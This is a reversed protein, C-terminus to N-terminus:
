QPHGARDRRTDAVASTGGDFENITVGLMGLTAGCFKSAESPERDAVRRQGV